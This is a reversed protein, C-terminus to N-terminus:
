GTAMICFPATVAEGQTTTLTWHRATEDYIASRVRRGFCIDRRLDHKDAVHNAYALIEPQPAYRETWTWE